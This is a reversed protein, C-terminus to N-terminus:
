LSIYQSYAYGYIGDYYVIYWDGTEYLVTLKEGNAARKVIPSDLFPGKRINLSGSTLNVTGIIGEGDEGIKRSDSKNVENNIFICGAIKEKNGHKSYEQSFLSSYANPM